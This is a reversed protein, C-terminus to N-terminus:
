GLGGMAYRGASGYRLADRMFRLCTPLYIMLRSLGSGVSRGDMDQYECLWGM